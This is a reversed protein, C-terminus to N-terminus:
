FTPYGSQYTEDDHDNIKPFPFSVPVFLDNGSDRGAPLRTVPKLERTAAERAKCIDSADLIRQNHAILADIHAANANPIAADALCHVLHLNMAALDGIMTSVGVQNVDNFFVRNGGRDAPIDGM